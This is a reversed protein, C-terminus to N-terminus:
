IDITILEKGFIEKLIGEYYFKLESKRSSVHERRGKQQRHHAPNNIDIENRHYQGFHVTQIERISPEYGPTRMEVIINMSKFGNAKPEEYYDNKYM